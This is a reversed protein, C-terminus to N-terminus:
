KGGSALFLQCKDKNIYQNLHDFKTQTHKQTVIVMNSAVHISEDGVWNKKVVAKCNVPTKWNKENNPRTNQNPTILM